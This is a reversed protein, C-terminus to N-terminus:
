IRENCLGTLTSEIETLFNLTNDCWNTFTDYKTKRFSKRYTNRCDSLMLVVEETDPSVLLALTSSSREDSRALKIVSNFLSRNLFSAHADLLAMKMSEIKYIMSTAAAVLNDDISTNHLICANYGCTIEITLKSFSNDKVEYVFRGADFHKDDILMKMM